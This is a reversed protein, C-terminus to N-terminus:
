RHSGKEKHALDVLRIALENFKKKYKALDSDGDNDYYDDIKFEDNRELKIFDRQMALMQKIIKQKETM